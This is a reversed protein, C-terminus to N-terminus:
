KVISIVEVNNINNFTTLSYTDGYNYIRGNVKIYYEGYLMDSYYKNIYDYITHLKFLGVHKLKDLEVRMIGSNINEVKNSKKDRYDPGISNNEVKNTNTLLTKCKDVFSKRRPYKFEIHFIMYKDYFDKDMSYISM